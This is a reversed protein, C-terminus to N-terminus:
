IEDTMSSTTAKPCKIIHQIISNCLNCLALRRLKFSCWSTTCHEYTKRWLICWFYLLWNMFCKYKWFSVSHLRIECVLKLLANEVGEREHGM